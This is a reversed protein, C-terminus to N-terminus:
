IKKINIKSKLNDIMDVLEEVDVMDSVNEDSDDIAQILRATEREVEMRKERAETLAESLEKSMAM